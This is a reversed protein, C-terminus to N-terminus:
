LWRVRTRGVLDRAAVMYRLADCGHDNEKVPEEKLGGKNGPKVAWVYGTIEDATCMPLSGTELEPDREVLANRAIFLRPKGDPQVKLRSQVAQIGDSVSKHAPKTSLGLKRELTARDEADHDVYIARPLQGRPQGSAYYLIHKIREAHDEVLRRTFYIERALYLRGDPDEWWDQYVFPNTYGFDVAGWRTWAATPKVEDVLHIAEDYAEYIQGEVAAWKGDRLRLRRVGTLADLKAFYAAGVTTPTGDANMYAPNDIHRSILMRAQGQDCRQKLWHTPQAPNCAAIQQQWSLVGNRLRTAISEWDTVTLETAEDAFVLDYEASMIK